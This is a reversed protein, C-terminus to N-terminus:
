SSCTTASPEPSREGGRTNRLRGLISPATRVVIAPFRSRPPLCWPVPSRHGGFELDKKAEAWKEPEVRYRPYNKEDWDMKNVWLLMRITEARGWMPWYHLVPKSDM